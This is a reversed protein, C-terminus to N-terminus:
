RTMAWQYTAHLREILSTLANKIDHTIFQRVEMSAVDIDLYWTPEQREAFIHPDYTSKPPMLGSRLLMKGEDVKFHWQLDAAELGEQKSISVLEPNCLERPDEGDSVAATNLIRTGVRMVHSPEAAKILATVLVMVQEVFEVRGIYSPSQVELALSSPTLTVKRERDTTVFQWLRVNEQKASMEGGSDVAVRVRADLLPEFLPYERRVREQFENVLVSEAEGLKAIPSFHVVALAREILRPGAYPAFSPNGRLPLNAM